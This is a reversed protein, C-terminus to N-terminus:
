QHWTDIGTEMDTEKDIANKSMIFRDAERKWKIIKLKVRCNLRRRHGIFQNPTFIHGFKSTHWEGSSLIPFTNFLLPSLNM